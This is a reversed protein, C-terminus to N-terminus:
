PRKRRKQQNRQTRSQAQLRQQELVQMLLPRLEDAPRAPDTFGQVKLDLYTSVTRRIFESATTKEIRAQRSIKAWEDASWRMSKLRTKRAPKTM